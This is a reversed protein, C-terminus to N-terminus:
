PAPTTGPPKTALVVEVPVWMRKVLAQEIHFGARSLSERVHIPRCDLLNPFHRHTWEYVVVTPDSGGERSVGVVAIRGGPRLVRLCEALVAPIEPTDFLELTFSMFVGDMSGTEYPLETADGRLLEIRDSVGEREVLERARAVMQGSLDIGCVRGGPGVAEALKVVSHGTGCGVELMREGPSPALLELGLERMPRESREALLDYVGAIKDYYAEVEDRTKLVRLVDGHDKQGM